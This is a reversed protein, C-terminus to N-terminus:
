RGLRSWRRRYERGTYDSPDAGSALAEARDARLELEAAIEEDETWTRGEDNDSGISTTSQFRKPMVLFANTPLYWRKVIRQRHSDDASPILHRLGGALAAPHRTAEVAAVDACLDRTMEVWRPTFLMATSIFPALPMAVVVSAFGLVITLRWAVEARTALRCWPDRMGAFQAAVLAELEDRRLQEVAQTTAMVVIGDRTPFAGVNPITAEVVLVQEVREGVAVAVEDAVNRLRGDAPPHEKLDEVIASGLREVPLAAILMTAVVVAFPAIWWGADPILEDYFGNPFAATTSLVSVLALWALATARLAHSRATRALKVHGM